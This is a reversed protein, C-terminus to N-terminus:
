GEEGGCVYTITYKEDNKDKEDDDGSDTVDQSAIFQPCFNGLVIGYEGLGNKLKIVEKTKPNKYFVGDNEIISAHPLQDLFGSVDYGYGIRANGYIENFIPDVQVNDDDEEFLPLNHYKCEENSLSMKYWIVITDEPNAFFTSDKKFHEIQKGRSNQRIVSVGVSCDSYCEDDDDSGKVFKYM